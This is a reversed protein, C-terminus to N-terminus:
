FNDKVKPADSDTKAIATNENWTMDANRLFGRLYQPTNPDLLAVGGGIHEGRDVGRIYVRDRGDIYVDRTLVGLYPQNPRKRLPQSLLAPLLADPNWDENQWTQGQPGICWWSWTKLGQHRHRAPGRAYWREQFYGYPCNTMASLPLKNIPVIGHIEGRLNKLVLETRRYDLHNHVQYVYLPLNGVVIWTKLLRWEVDYCSAFLDSAPM